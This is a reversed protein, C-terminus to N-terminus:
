PGITAQNTQSWKITNTSFKKNGKTNSFKVPKFTYVEAPYTFNTKIKSGEEHSTLVFIGPTGDLSTRTGTVLIESLRRFTIGSSVGNSSTNVTGGSSTFTTTGYRTNAYRNLSHFYPGTSAFGTKAHVEGNKTPKIFRTVRSMMRINIPLRTITLDRTAPDYPALTQGQLNDSLCEHPNPRLTTGDTNTGLRRGIIAAFLTNLITSLPSIVGGQERPRTKLDIKNVIEVQGAFYFGSTHITKKFSDRWDNITRGVKIVYSFDQYYLSDQIRMTNESIFGDQNVFNGTTDVISSVSTTATSLEMREVTATAGSGFTITSGEAFQGSPNSVKLLGLTSNYSLANATIATNTLSFGTVTEDKVINSSSLSSIILYGPLGITPSPSQQYEAGLDIIKLGLVRGIESGYAYVIAGVGDTSDVDVVPLSQYNNGRNIIRIDTIDGVGGELMIKDGTYSDSRTTGEELVIHDDTTSTSDEPTIAGNIVSVKARASGGGTNLNNFTIDDGVKYNIGPNAIIFESIGGRGIGDVQIVAGQGGGNVTTVDGQTYLSGDNTLTPLSPIGTVIGKIYVFDEDTQTGRVTEGVTFTGSRTDENLICETVENVGIQFKFVDEVIATAGSTEGEITRGILNSTEGVNGIIRLIKQTDWKGDSVRLMNERPYLTQSKQGFLLRFFLEHGKSTGKSRYLSNVNKILKRRDLGNALKEPLTTLFENRFNTLFNSIVKDPDRFNILDQISNVPNPKYNNIIAEAGSNDGVIIEGQIFKDQASIFLRNNNLDEALVTSIANSTLGRITEGRTFKGFSSSELLIKDGADLQTRDTDIRSSDLVINSSNPTETELNLGDTSQVSTVVLEASEMFTYYTKLFELFKPHQEVVFEPVQQNILNSIKDTFKAM